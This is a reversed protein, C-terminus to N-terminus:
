GKKEIARGLILVAEGRTIPSSPYFYIKGSANVGQVIGLNYATLVEKFGFYDGDIDSFPNPTELFEFELARMVMVTFEVRKTYNNPFFAYSSIYSTLVTVIGRTYAEEILNFAWYVRPVDNFTPKLYRQPTIGMVRLILAVAEARTLNNQPKFTGDPYGKIIGKSNLISLYKILEPDKVDTFPSVDQSEQGIIFITTAFNQSQGFKGIDEPEYTKEKSTTNVLWFNIRYTGVSVPSGSNSKQNWQEKFVKVENPELNIETIVDAFMRGQSWRYFGLDNKAINFIVFDYTQATNFTLKQFVNSENSITFTINVTEGLKYVTKDTEVKVLIGGEGKAPSVKFFTFL